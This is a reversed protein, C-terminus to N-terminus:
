GLRKQLEKYIKNSDMLEGTWLEFAKAGQEVFMRLGNIITAGKAEAIKLFETKLPNYILDFVMQNSNFVESIDIPTENINPYMGIPTTNIILNSSKINEINDVPILEDSFINEFHMKDKFYDRLAEVKEITRNLVHIKEVRFHRILTYIVARASGGAGIITVNNKYIEEKYPNLTEIIGYIDTNYGHLLGGENVITNVAGVSAAEDSVHDLYQIIKEKHPITVNLGKIGLVLMAKLAERLNSPPIDFPFYLYNLNKSRFEFNHMLPSFSHKIPHGIVGILKTNHDIQTLIDM